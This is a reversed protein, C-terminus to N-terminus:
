VRADCGTIFDYRPARRGTFEVSYQLTRYWAGKTRRSARPRHDLQFKGVHRSARRIIALSRAFRVCAHTNARERERPVYRRQARTRARVNIDILSVRQNGPIYSCPIRMLCWPRIRHLRRSRREPRSGRARREYNIEGARARPSTIGRWKVTTTGCKKRYM